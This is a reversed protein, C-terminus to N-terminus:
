KTQELAIRVVLCLMKCLLEGISTKRKSEHLSATVPTNTYHFIIKVSDYVYM